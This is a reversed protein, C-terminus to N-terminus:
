FQRASISMEIKHGTSSYIYLKVKTTGIVGIRTTKQTGKEIPIDIPSLNGVTLKAYITDTSNNQIWINADDGNDPNLTFTREYANYSSYTDPKIIQLEFPTIIPDDPNEVTIPPNTYTDKVRDELAGASASSASLLVSLAVGVGLIKNFSM